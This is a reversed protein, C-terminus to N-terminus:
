CCLFYLNWLAKHVDKDKEVKIMMDKDFKELPQDQLLIQSMGIEFMEYIWWFDAKSEM